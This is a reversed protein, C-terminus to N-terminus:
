IPYLVDAAYSQKREKKKGTGIKRITVFIAYKEYKFTQLGAVLINKICILLM